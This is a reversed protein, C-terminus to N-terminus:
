HFDVSHFCAHDRSSSNAQIGLLMDGLAGGYWQRYGLYSTTLRPNIEIPIWQAWDHAGDPILFDIGIWGCPKGPIANLVRNAFLELQQITTDGLPGFGGTYQVNSVSANDKCPLHEIRQAVSGLIWHSQGALVALSRANGALWPQVIWSEWHQAREELSWTLNETRQSAENPQTVQLNSRCWTALSRDSEFRKMDACGAGDRRKLVWGNLNAGAFGTQEAHPSQLFSTLTQTLPHPLNANLMAEAFLLKDSTAKLFLSDSALVIAGHERLHHVTTALLNDIEPAIVITIEAPIAVQRWQSLWDVRNSCVFDDFPKLACTLDQKSNTLEHDLCTFVQHGCQQLDSALAHLMSWGERLLAQAIESRDSEGASHTDPIGILEHIGGGSLLELVAVKM